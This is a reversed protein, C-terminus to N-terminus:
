KKKEKERSCGTQAATGTLLRAGFPRGAIGVDGASTSRRGRSRDKTCRLMRIDASQPVVAGASPAAARALALLQLRTQLVQQM